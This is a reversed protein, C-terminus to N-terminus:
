VIPAEGWADEMRRQWWPRSLMGSSWANPYVWHLTRYCFLSGGVSEWFRNAVEDGTETPLRTGSDAVPDFNNPAIRNELSRPEAM